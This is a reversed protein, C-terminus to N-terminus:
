IPAMTTTKVLALDFCEQVKKQRRPIYSEELGSLLVLQITVLRSSLSDTRVSAIDDM